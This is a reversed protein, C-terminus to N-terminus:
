KTLAIKIRAMVKGADQELQHEWVRLVSWGRRRLQTSVKRDRARNKEIKPQWYDLNSQAPRGCRPCGHWYCGDVFIILREADFVFDPKGPLDGAHMRWGQLGRQALRARLASETSKNGRSRIAAM